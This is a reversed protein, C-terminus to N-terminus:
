NIKWSRWPLQSVDISGLFTVIDGPVDTFNDRRVVKYRSKDEASHWSEIRM